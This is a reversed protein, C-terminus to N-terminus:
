FLMSERCVSLERRRRMCVHRQRLGLLTQGELVFAIRDTEQVAVDAVRHLRSAENAEVVVPGLANSLHVRMAEVAALDFRNARKLDGARAVRAMGDALLEKQHGLHRVQYDEVRMDLLSPGAAILGRMVEHCDMAACSPCLPLCMPLRGTSGAIGAEETAAEAGTLANPSRYSAARSNAALASTRLM